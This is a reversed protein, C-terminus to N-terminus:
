APQLSRLVNTIDTRFAFGSVTGNGQSREKATLRHAPDYWTTMRGTYTIDGTLRLTSEVVACPVRTGGVSVTETRAVRATLAAKTKGDTSTATWSWSRGVAAPAPVLLVPSPPAFEKTFAPNTLSLRALYTGDGRVVVDQETRGQDGEHVSHQRGDTAPDVTLTPTGDVQQPAGATVTGSSDYTYTGPATAGPASASSRVPVPAAPVSPRSAAGTTPGATRTAAAPSAPRAGAPPAVSSSATSPETRPSSREASPASSGGCATLALVATMALLARTM